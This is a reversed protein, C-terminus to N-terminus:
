PTNCVKCEAIPNVEGVLYGNKDVSFGCCEKLKEKILNRGRQIQSKISPLPINLEKSIQYQKKGATYYSRIPIRYKNPLKKIINELCDYITHSAQEKNYPAEIQLDVNASLLKKNNWQSVIQNHAISFLWSKLRSSDKLQSVKTFAKLYVEQVIDKALDENRVKSLIFLFIDKRYLSWDFQPEINSLKVDKHQAMQINIEFIFAFLPAILEM